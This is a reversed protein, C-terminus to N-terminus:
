KEADIFQSQVLQRYIGCRDLLERHTGCDAITGDQMVIIRDASIVTSFRHAIMFTTRGRMFEEMAQHIRSESDADIQSMAEDFILIAPDRLIARAIAIRQRHGGSLTAGHPGVITNLGDPMTNAFEDVFARKAATLIQEDKARRLGYAINEAITAAFIVTEQSVLGIQRRLSRLSCTATDTGDIRITGGEPELLRPLLSMLTTKGSGNPGVIAVSQGFQVKLNIDSLVDIRQPKSYRGSILKSVRKFATMRNEGIPFQKFMARTVIANSM